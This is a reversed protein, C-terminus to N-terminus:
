SGEGLRFRGGALVLVRRTVRVPVPLVAASGMTRYLESDVDDAADVRRLDLFYSTVCKDFMNEM